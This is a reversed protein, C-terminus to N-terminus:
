TSWNAPPDCRHVANWWSVVCSHAVVVSPANWRLAGHAYGNLHVIDPRLRDALGLLWDGAADVDSWPNEMWELAYSSEILDLGPIRRAELRQEDSPLPGM